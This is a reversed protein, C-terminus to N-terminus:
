SQCLSVGNFLIKFTESTSAGFGGKIKISIVVLM